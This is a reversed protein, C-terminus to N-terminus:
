TGRLIFFSILDVNPDRKLLDRLYREDWSPRGVLQLVRIKDRIVQLVFERKNNEKVAERDYVPVSVEYIAKGIEEPVLRFSVKAVGNPLLEVDKSSIPKGARSLTVTTQHVEDLGTASISVEVDTANHVFAFEGVNVASISLDRVSGDVGTFFTHIPIQRRALGQILEDRAIGSPGLADLGGNDAGDSILLIGGLDKDQYRELLEADLKDILMHLAPDHPDVVTIQM